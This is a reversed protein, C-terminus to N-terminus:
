FSDTVLLRSATFAPLSKPKIGDELQVAILERISINAPYRCCHRTAINQTPLTAEYFSNWSAECSVDKPSACRRM